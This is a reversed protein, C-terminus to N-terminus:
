VIAKKSQDMNEDKIIVLYAFDIKRVTGDDMFHEYVYPIKQYCIGKETLYEEAYRVSNCGCYVPEMDPSDIPTDMSFYVVTGGSLSLMKDLADPHYTAPNLCTLICDYKDTFDHEMFDALIYSVNDAGDEFCREECVSLMRESYDLATVHACIGAVKDWYEGTNMDTRYFRAKEYANQWKKRSIIECM